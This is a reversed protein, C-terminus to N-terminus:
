AKLSTGTMQEPPKVGWLDLITPVIDALKGTPRLPVPKGADRVAMRVPNHSHATSPQGDSAIMEDANGHDATLVLRGGSEEVAAMIRGACEDVVALAELVAPMKGTHGVMDPNALNCVVFQYQGTKWAAILKDTVERVSMAPKLDYTAV